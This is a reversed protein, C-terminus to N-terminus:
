RVYQAYNVLWAQYRKEDDEFPIQPSSFTEGSQLAILDKRIEDLQELEANFAELDECAEEYLTRASKMDELCRDVSEALMNSQKGNNMDNLRVCIAADISELKNM